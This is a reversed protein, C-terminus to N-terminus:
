EEKEKMPHIDGFLEPMQTRCQNLLPVAVELMQPHPKETEGAARLRFFHRWERMNATMIVETKLSNPLVSRAEEPTAGLELMAFYNQESYSCSEYWRAYRRHLDETGNNLFDMLKKDKFSEPDDLLQRCMKKEKEPINRFFVPEIVTIENGFKDKSYNCYRTSEQAFSAVRHRVLEHSVGRDVTFKVTMVAHELMAEHGRKVVNEVFKAASEPTIRDESKYCTRGAQEILRYIANKAEPGDTDPRIIEYGAKIIKM